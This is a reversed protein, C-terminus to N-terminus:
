NALSRLFHGNPVFIWSSSQWKNDEYALSRLLLGSFALRNGNKGVTEVGSFASDHATHCQVCLLFSFSFFFWQGSFSPCLLPYGLKM